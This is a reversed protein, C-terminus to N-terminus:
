RSSSVMRVSSGFIVGSMRSFIRARLSASPMSRRSVGAFAGSLAAISSSTYIHSICSPAHCVGFKAAQSGLYLADILFGILVDVLLVQVKHLAVLAPLGLVALHHVLALDCLRVEVHPHAPLHKLTFLPLGLALLHLGRQQIGVLHRHVHDVAGAHAHEGVVGVEDAVLKFLVPPNVRGEAQVVDVGHLAQQHIFGIEQRGPGNALILAVLPVVFLNLARHRLPDDLAFLQRVNGLTYALERAFAAHVGHKAVGARHMGARLIGSANFPHVLRLPQANFNLLLPQRRQVSVGAVRM